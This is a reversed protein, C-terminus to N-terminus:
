SVIVCLIKNWYFACFELFSILFIVLLYNYGKILYVIKSVVAAESSVFNQCVYFLLQSCLIVSNCM